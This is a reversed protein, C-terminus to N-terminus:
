ADQKHPSPLERDNAATQAQGDAELTRAKVIHTRVQQEVSLEGLRQMSPHNLATLAAKPQNRGMALEASLTSAFDHL